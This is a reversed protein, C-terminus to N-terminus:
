RCAVVDIRDERSEALPYGRRWYLLIPGLDVVGERAILHLPYDRREGRRACLEAVLGLRRQEGLRGGAELNRQPQDPPRLLAGAELFAQIALERRYVLDDRAVVKVLTHASGHDVLIVFGHPRRSTQVLYAVAVDFSIEACRRLRYEPSIRRTLSSILMVLAIPNMPRPLM